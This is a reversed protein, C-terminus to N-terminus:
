SGGVCIRLLERGSVLDALHDRLESLTEIQVVKWGLGAAVASLDAGQPCRFVRGFARRYESGGQELTEFLSGGKDDLLIVRIPAATENPPHVLAGLDHQLTLDGLLVTTPAGSGLGIGTATAITGDIGALGRNAYTAAGLAGVPALDAHRISSSAGFVLNEGPRAAAVVAAAVAEGTLADGTPASPRQWRALWEPDGPALRVDDVVIAAAHGPDPWTARDAVVILEIDRRALLAAVPRSLTPHGYVVVREIDEALGALLERYRPIASGFRANSSPEALLPIGAEAAVANARRGVAVPADGALVVTRAPTLVELTQGAEVPGFRTAPWREPARVAADVLPVEFEINVHVPGPERTRVGRALAIARTLQGRWAAEDGTTSAMRVCALAPKLLGVQDCTQNAGALTATAPRDATILVLPIGAARAEMVAPLLNGVASGSTTVVVVPEGSSKAIGLATFAAIREDIRVHLRILGSEDATFLALSIPANRSGPSLVVHRVGAAALTEVATVGLLPSNM